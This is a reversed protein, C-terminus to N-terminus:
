VPPSLCSLILLAPSSLPSFPHSSPWHVCSFFKKGPFYRLGLLLEKSFWKVHSMFDLGNLSYYNVTKEDSTQVVNGLRRRGIRGGGGLHVTSIGQRSEDPVSVHLHLSIIRSCTHTDRLPFCCHYM